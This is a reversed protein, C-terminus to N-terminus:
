CGREEQGTTERVCVCVVWGQVRSEAELAWEGKSRLIGEGKARHNRERQWVCVGAVWAQVKSEAGVLYMVKTSGWCTNSICSSLSFPPHYTHTHSLGCPLLLPSELFYPLTLGPPQSCLEPTPPIHTHSLSWLALPSLISLLSHSRTRPPVQKGIANVTYRPLHETSQILNTPFYHAHYEHKLM